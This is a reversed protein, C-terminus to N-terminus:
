VMQPGSKSFFFKEPRKKKFAERVDASSTRDLIDQDQTYRTHIFENKGLLLNLYLQWPSPYDLDRQHRVNLRHLLDFEILSSM